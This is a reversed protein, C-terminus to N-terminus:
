EVDGEGRVFRGDFREAAPCVRPYPAAFLAALALVTALFLAKRDRRPLPTLFVPPTVFYPSM